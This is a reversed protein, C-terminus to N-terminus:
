DAKKPAKEKPEPKSQEAQNRRAAENLLNLIPLGYKVPTEQIIQNLVNVDQESLILTAM